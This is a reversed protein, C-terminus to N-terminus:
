GCVTSTEYYRDSHQDQDNWIGGNNSIKQLIIIKLTQLSVLFYQKSNQLNKLM